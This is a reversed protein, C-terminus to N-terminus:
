EDRHIEKVYRARAEIEALKLDAHACAEKRLRTREGEPLAAFAARDYGRTRLYEDILSQELKGEFDDVPPVDPDETTM